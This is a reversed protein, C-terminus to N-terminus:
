DNEYKDQHSWTILAYLWMFPLAIVDLVAMMTLARDGAQGQNAPVTIKAPPEAYYPRGFGKNQMNM